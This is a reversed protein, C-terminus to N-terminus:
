VKFKFDSFPTRNISNSYDNSRFKLKHFFWNVAAYISSKVLLVPWLFYNGFNKFIIIVAISCGLKDM